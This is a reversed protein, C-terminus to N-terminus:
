KNLEAQLDLHVHNPMTERLSQWHLGHRGLVGRTDSMRPTAIHEFPSAHMPDADKLKSYLQRDQELTSEVNPAEFTSYSVRACRAVSQTINDAYPTHVQGAQLRKPESQKIAEKAAYALKRLPPFADPHARQALFNAWAADTGTIVVKTFSFPTLLRNADEKHVGMKELQRCIMVASDLAQYWAGQAKALDAVPPGAQMGKQNSGFEPVYPDDLVSQILRASPIARMSAANKAFMGHTNLQALAVTPLKAEVTILRNIRNPHLSDAIIKM